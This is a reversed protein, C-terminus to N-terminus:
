NKTINSMNSTTIYEPGRFGSVRPPRGRFKSGQGRLTSGSGLKQEGVLVDSVM